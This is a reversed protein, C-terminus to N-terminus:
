GQRFAPSEQGSELSSDYSALTFEPSEWGVINQKQLAFKKINLSAHIDRDEILLGCSPCVWSRDSLTLLKNVVGCSCMKSSPEFRGIFLLNKGYWECKYKLQTIFTAWSADSISRALKHNKLMGSINLNELCITDVQKDHTLSYTLKHIFDLRQNTIKEYLLAVKLRAKNRNNSGKVKRSLRRQLLKLKDISKKLFKPSDIKTGNSLIAFHTLGLDIGITKNEKIKPKVKAIDPTEVLISIFYKGTPTKLITSTKVKGDFDRSLKAKINKIKPVSIKSSKFDVKTNQPVQFSQRNNKKSKFKPFGKKDRFFKTFAKDLNFLSNQLSQSNVENLWEKDSDKKLKALLPILSYFSLSKNEKQYAENKTQLGWNYVFRTCGFHKEFLITQEKTPYLRYKYAKLM